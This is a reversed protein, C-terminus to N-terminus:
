STRSCLRSSSSNRPTRSRIRPSRAKMASRPRPEGSSTSWVRESIVVVVPEVLSQVAGIENELADELVELGLPGKEALHLREDSRVDDQRGVRRDDPYGLDSLGARKGPPDHARVPPVRGVEDGDDLDDRSLLGGFLRDLPDGPQHGLGALQRDVDLLVSGPEDAVAQKVREIPFGHGDDLLADGIQVVTSRTSLYPGPM